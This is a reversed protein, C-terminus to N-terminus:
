LEEKLKMIRGGKQQPFVSKLFIYIKPSIPIEAQGSHYYSDPPSNQKPVRTFTFLNLKKVIYKVKQCIYKRTFKFGLILFKEAVM